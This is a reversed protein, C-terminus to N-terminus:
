LFCSNVPRETRPNSSTSLYVICVYMPLSSSDLSICFSLWPIIANSLCIFVLYVSLYTFLVVFWFVHGYYLGLFLYIFLNDIICFFMSYSFQHNCETRSHIFLQIPENLFLCAFSIFLCICLYSSFWCVCLDFYM